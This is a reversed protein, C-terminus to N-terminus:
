GLLWLPWAALALFFGFPLHTERDIARGAARLLLAALLGAVSALLLAWPLIRWGLWAGVAAFLKADGGGLGRRHRLALHAAAIATLSAYGAAAAIVRDQLPPAAGAIGVALGTLLLPLTLRDPLWLCGLDLVALALLMWGFLAGAAGEWGPHFALSTAGIAAALLEMAPHLPDIAGGCRRCRGRLALFSLVPVLERPTLPKGCHDCASRGAVISRGKPMRVVLTSLFSGAIAGAAAGALIGGALDSRSLSDLM